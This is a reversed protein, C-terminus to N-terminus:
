TACCVISLPVIKESGYSYIMEGKPPPTSSHMRQNLEAWGQLSFIRGGLIYVQLLIQRWIQLHHGSGPMCTCHWLQDGHPSHTLFYCCSLYVQRIRAWKIVIVALIDYTTASLVWAHPLGNLIWAGNEVNNWSCTSNGVHRGHCLIKIYNFFSTQSSWKSLERKLRFSLLQSLSFRLILEHEM